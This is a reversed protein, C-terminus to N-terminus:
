SHAQVQWGRGCGGASLATDVLDDNIASIPPWIQGSFTQGCSPVAFDDESVSLWPSMSRAFQKLLAPVYFCAKYEAFDNSPSLNFVFLLPGREAVILQKEDSAESVIQHPDSTFNYVSDLHNLARDFAYLQSYRLHEARCPFVVTLQM